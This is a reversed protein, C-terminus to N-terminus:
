VIVKTSDPAKGLKSDNIGYELLMTKIIYSSKSLISCPKEENNLFNFLLCFRKVKTDLANFLRIRPYREIM